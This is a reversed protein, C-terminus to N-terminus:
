NRQLKWPAKRRWAEDLKRDNRRAAMWLLGAGVLALM